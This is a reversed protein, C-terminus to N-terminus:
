IKRWEDYERKCIMHESLVIQDCRVIEKEVIGVLSSAIEGRQVAGRLITIVEQPSLANRYAREERMACYMETIKLIQASLSLENEKKGFPYGKGNICEHHHGVWQAITEFGKLQKVVFYSNFPHSRIINYEKDSLMGKYEQIEVPITFAGIDHLLAAYYLQQLDNESLGMKKGLFLSLAAAATSHAYTYPSRFDIIHAYVKIIEALQESTLSMAYTTIARQLVNHVSKSVLPAWFVKKSAMSEWIHVFEPSFLSPTANRLSARINEQQENFTKKSQCLVAIRDALHLLHAERPVQIAGDFAGNGSNWAHHHYRILSAIKSFVPYKKVFNYGLIAHSEANVTDFALLGKKDRLSTAGIDHYLAALLISQKKEHTYGAEEAISLAIYAVTFHHNYVDPDVLDLASSLMLALSFHNVQASVM